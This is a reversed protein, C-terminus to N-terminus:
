CYRRAFSGPDSFDFDDKPQADRMWPSYFEQVDEARRRHSELTPEIVLAGSKDLLERFLDGADICAEIVPQWEPPAQHEEVLLRLKEACAIGHAYMSLPGDAGGPLDASEYLGATTAPRDVIAVGFVENIRTVVEMGLDHDYHAEGDAEHSLGFSKSFEDSEAAECIAEFYESQKRLKLDGRLGGEYRVNQLVGVWNQWPRDEDMESKKQHNLYVKAGNYLPAAERMADATYQRRNRSNAGLIRVGHIVGAERDVRGHLVARESFRKLTATM